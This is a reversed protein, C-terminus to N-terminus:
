HNRKKKTKKIKSKFKHYDWVELHVTSYEPGFCEFTTSENRHQLIKFFM